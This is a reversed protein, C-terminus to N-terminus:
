LRGAYPDELTKRAYLDYQYEPKGALSFLMRHIEPSLSHGLPYGLLGYKM